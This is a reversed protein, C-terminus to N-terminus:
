SLNDAFCSIEHKWSVGKERELAKDVRYVLIFHLQFNLDLNKGCKVKAQIEGIGCIFWLNKVNPLLLVMGIITM